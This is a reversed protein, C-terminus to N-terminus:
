RKDLIKSNVTNDDAEWDFTPQNKFPRGIIPVVNQIRQTNDTNSMAMSQVADRAAEAAVQALAKTINTQESVM